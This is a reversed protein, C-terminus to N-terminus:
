ASDGNPEHEDLVDQISAELNDLQGIIGSCVFTFERMLDAVIARIAAKKEGTM